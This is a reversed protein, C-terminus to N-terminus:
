GRADGKVDRAVDRTIDEKAEIAGTARLFPTLEDFLCRHGEEGILRLWHLTSLTEDAM